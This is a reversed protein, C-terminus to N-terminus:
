THIVDYSALLYVTDYIFKIRYRKSSLTSSLAVGDKWKVTSSWTLTYASDSDLILHYIGAENNIFAVNVGSSRLSAIQLNGNNWDVTYTTASNWPSASHIHLSQVLKKTVTLKTAVTLVDPTTYSNVFNSLALLTKIVSGDIVPDVGSSWNANGVITNMREQVDTLIRNLKADIDRLETNDDAINNSWINSYM